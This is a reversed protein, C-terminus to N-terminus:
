SLSLQYIQNEDRFIQWEFPFFSVENFTISGDNNNDFKKL